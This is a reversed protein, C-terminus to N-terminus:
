CYRSGVSVVSNDLYRFADIGASFSDTEFVTTFAHLSASGCALAFKRARATELVRETARNGNKCVPVAPLLRVREPM